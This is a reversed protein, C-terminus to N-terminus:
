LAFVSLCCFDIVGIDFLVLFSIVKADFYLFLIVLIIIFCTFILKDKTSGMLVQIDRILIILRVIIFGTIANRHVFCFVAILDCNIFVCKKNIRRVDYSRELIPISSMFHPFICCRLDLHIFIRIALVLRSYLRSISLSINCQCKILCYNM